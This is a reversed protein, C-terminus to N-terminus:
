MIATCVKLKGSIAHGYNEPQARPSQAHMEPLCSM